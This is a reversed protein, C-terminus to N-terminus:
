KQHSEWWEAFRWDRLAQRMQKRNLGFKRYIQKSHSRVTDYSVSLIEAIEYSSQGLCILATVEQERPSLSNWSAAYKGARLIEDVGARLVEDLVERQDRQPERAIERLSLNLQNDLSFTNTSRGQEGKNFFQRLRGLLGSM